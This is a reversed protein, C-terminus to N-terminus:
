RGTRTTSKPPEIEGDPEFRPLDDPPKVGPIAARDTEVKSGKIGYLAEWIHRVADGSTGSGTGGQEIMMVVVFDKDYTALWSTTQKGYVGATGAKARIQVQDLPFGIM